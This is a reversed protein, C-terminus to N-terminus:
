RYEIGDSYTAGVYRAVSPWSMTSDPGDDALAQVMDPIHAPDIGVSECWAACHQTTFPDPQTTTPEEPNTM